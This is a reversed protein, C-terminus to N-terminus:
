VAEAQKVEAHNAHNNDSSDCGSVIDFANKRMGTFVCRHATSHTRCLCHRLWRGRLEILSIGKLRLKTLSLLSGVPNTYVTLSHKPVSIESLVVVSHVRLAM